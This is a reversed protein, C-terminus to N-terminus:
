VHKARRHVGTLTDTHGTVPFESSNQDTGSIDLRKLCELHGLIHSRIPRGLSSIITLADAQILQLM